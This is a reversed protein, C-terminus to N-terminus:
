VGLSPISGYELRNGLGFREHKLKNRLTFILQDEHQDPWGAGLLGLHPSQPGSFWLAPTSPPVEQTVQRRAQPRSSARGSMRGQGRGRPPETPLLSSMGEATSRADQLPSAPMQSAPPDGLYSREWDIQGTLLHHFFSPRGGTTLCPGLLRRTARQGLRLSWSAEPDGSLRLYCPTLYLLM